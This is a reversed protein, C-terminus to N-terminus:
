GEFAKKFEVFEASLKAIDSKAKNLSNSLQKESDNSKLANLSKNIAGVSETLSKFKRDIESTNFTPAPKSSLEKIQLKLAKIENDYLKPKPMSEIKSNLRDIDKTKDEPLRILKISEDLKKIDADYSKAPKISGVKKQLEAVKASNDAPIKINRISTQLKAIDSDYSKARPLEAISKELARIKGNFDIPKPMNEILSKVKNIDASYDIPKEVQELAALRESIDDIQKSLKSGLVAVSEGTSRRNSDFQKMIFEVDVVQKNDALTKIAENIEQLEADYSKPQHQNEIKSKLQEFEPIFRLIAAINENFKSM